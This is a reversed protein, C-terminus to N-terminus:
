TDSSIAAAAPQNSTPVVIPVIGKLQKPYRTKRRRFQRMKPSYAETMAVIFEDLSQYGFKQPLDALAAERDANFKSILLSLASRQKEVAQLRERITMQLSLAYTPLLQERAIGFCSRTQDRYGDKMAM